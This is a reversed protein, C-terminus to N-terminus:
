RLYNFLSLQSIKTYSLQAAQLGTTQQSLKTLASAYDLDRLDSLSSQLDVGLDQRAADADDLSSLRSGVEARVGLLHGNSQDVQQITAGLLTTLKANAAASGTPQQLAAIAANVTQFIDQAASKNVAFTDGTAPTGGIEVQVGRFSIATGPTYAGTAVVNPVPSASDTVQWTTASTFSVTYNDPIWAAKNVVTGTSITGSGVNAAGAGVSFTGNGSAINQFVEYGSHSDAVRQTSDIQVLRTGQDGAYVANGAANLSFPQTQTSFGSFLYEGNGDKRNAIGILEQNLSTLETAISQRDTDSLTATNAAQVILERVRQLATGSDALAGEEQSLRSKVLTINKGYQDSESQARELELIHVAAIPDDAPTTVRKGLAIQNQLKALTSQQELMANVSGAFFGQTSIRATM